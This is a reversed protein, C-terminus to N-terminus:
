LQLLSSPAYCETAAAYMDFNSCLIVAPVILMDIKYNNEMVHSAFRAWSFGAGKEGNGSPLIVVLFLLITGRFLAGIDDRSMRVTAPIAGTTWIINGSIQHPLGTAYPLTATAKMNFRNSRNVIWPSLSPINKDNFGQIDSCFASKATESLM